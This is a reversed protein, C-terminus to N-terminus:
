PFFWQPEVAADDEGGCRGDDDDGGDDYDADEDAEEDDAKLADAVLHVLNQANEHKPVHVGVYACPGVFHPYGLSSLYALFHLSVVKGEVFSARVFPIYFDTVRFTAWLNLILEQYSISVSVVDSIQFFLTQM